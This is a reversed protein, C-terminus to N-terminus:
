VHGLHSNAYRSRVEDRSYGLKFDQGLRVNEPVLPRTFSPWGTGSKFKDKSSFLPEGSVIDVYIGPEKNDWYENEFARETGDQQTVRYQLPTLMERLVDDDPRTWRATPPTVEYHRDEGWVKDLFRDRGSGNRYRQYNAPSKKYYDQHYDEAPYYVSADTIETVIPRDFRGSAALAERSAEAAARQLADHVYIESRYQDGRDVFQGGADTPDIQRWFIELLDAYSVRAPDYHIQIAEAHGTGGRSVQEYTPDPVRGGTYGSIVASVGPVTEFPKEMCWFCGGAFTALAQGPAAEGSHGSGFSLGDGNEGANCASLGACLVLLSVLTKIM